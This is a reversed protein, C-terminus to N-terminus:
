IMKGLRRTTDAISCCLHFVEILQTVAADLVTLFNEPPRFYSIAVVTSAGYRLALLENKHTMQRLECVFLLFRSRAPTSNSDQLGVTFYLRRIIIM